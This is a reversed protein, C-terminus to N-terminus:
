RFGLAYVTVICEETDTTLRFGTITGSLGDLPMEYRTREASAIPCSFSKDGKDTKVTLCLTAGADTAFSADAYFLSYSGSLSIGSAAVSAGTGPASGFRIGGDTEQQNFGYFALPMQPETPVSVRGVPSTPQPTYFYPEEKEDTPLSKDKMANIMAEAIAAHGRDSPHTRFEVAGAEACVDYAPYDIFAYYPNERCRNEHIFGVDVPLFGYKEAYPLLAALTRRDFTPCIVICDRPLVKIIEGYVTRFFLDLPAHEKTRVNGDALFISLIHPRFSKINSLIHLLEPSTLYDEAVAETTCRRELLAHNEAYAELKVGYSTEVHSIFRHFYDKEASSAAMGWAGETQWGAFPGHKLYSHGLAYYRVNKM